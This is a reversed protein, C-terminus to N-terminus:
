AEQIPSHLVDLATNSFFRNGGSGKGLFGFPFHYAKLLAKKNGKEAPVFMRHGSTAPIEDSTLDDSVLLTRM